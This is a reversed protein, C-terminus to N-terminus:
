GTMLIYGILAQRARTQVASQWVTSLAALAVNFV